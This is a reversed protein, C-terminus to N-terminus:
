ESRRASLTDQSNALSPAASHNKGWAVGSRAAVEAARLSLEVPCLIPVGAQESATAAIGLFGLSMCGLIVAEAGDIQVAAQAAAVVSRLTRERDKPVELVPTHILRIGSCRHQLSSRAIAKEILPVAGSTVTVVGFRSAVKSAAAFSTEAPGIVPMRLLGRAEDLGPDSFCGIIAADFGCREAEKLARLTGPIAIREEELSEITIPGEDTDAVSATIDQSARSQLSRERRVLEQPGM